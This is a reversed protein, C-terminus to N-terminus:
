GLMHRWRASEDPDIEGHPGAPRTRAVPSRPFLLFDSGRAQRAPHPEGSGAGGM